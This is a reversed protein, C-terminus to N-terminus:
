KKKQKDYFAPYGVYLGISAEFFRLNDVEEYSYFVKNFRGNIIIGIDSSAIPIIVGAEPRIGFRFAGEEIPVIGYYKEYKLWYGGIGGGLYPMVHHSSRLYYFATALFPFSHFYRTQIASVTGRETEYVARPLEKSFSNWGGSLGISFDQEILYRIHIHVGDFARDSIYNNLDGSAFGYSYDFAYVMKLKVQSFCFTNALILLITLITSKPIM